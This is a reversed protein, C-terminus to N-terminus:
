LGGCYSFRDDDVFKDEKDEDEGYEELPISAVFGKDNFKNAVKELLAWPTKFLVPSNRADLEGRSMCRHLEILDDQHEDLFFICLLRIAERTNMNLNGGTLQKELAQTTKSDEIADLLVNLKAAIYKKDLDTPPFEKLFAKLKPIAWNGPRPERSQSSYKEM